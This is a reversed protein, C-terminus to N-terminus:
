LQALAQRLRAFDGPDHGLEIAAPYAPGSSRAINLVGRSEVWRIELVSDRGEVRGKAVGLLVIDRLLEIEPLEPGVQIHVVIRERIDDFWLVHGEPLQEVRIQVPM